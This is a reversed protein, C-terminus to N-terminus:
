AATTRVGAFPDEHPCEPIVPSVTAAREEIAREVEGLLEYRMEDRKEVTTHPVFLSRLPPYSFLYIAFELAIGIAIGILLDTALVAIITTVFVALQERGVKYVNVFERPSALRFGTYVLM